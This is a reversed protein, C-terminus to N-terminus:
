KVSKALEAGAKFKHPRFKGSHIISGEKSSEMCLAIIKRAWNQMPVHYEYKKILKDKIRNLLVDSPAEIGKNFLIHAPSLYVVKGIAESMFSIIVLLIGDYSFVLDYKQGPVLGPYYFINASNIRAEGIYTGDPAFIECKFKTYDIKKKM